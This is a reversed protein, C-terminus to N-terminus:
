IFYKKWYNREIKKRLTKKIKLLFSNKLTTLKFTSNNTMKDIIKKKLNKKILYKSMHQNSHFVM